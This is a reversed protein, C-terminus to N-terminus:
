VELSIVSAGGPTARSRGRGHPSSDDHSIPPRKLGCRRGQARHDQSGRPQQPDDQFRRAQEPQDQRRGAQARGDQRPRSAGRAEAAPEDIGARIAQPRPLPPLALKVIKRVVSGFQRHLPGTNYPIGYRERIERVERAIEAYRHAPLDPFLHHEIQFSLNGALIHFLRGGTLNASGLLQRYYWEGRTENETEEETFQERGTPSTGASSSRSRGCTAHSTRPRTAPWCSRSRRAPSCRSSCTTRSRRAACRAGSRRCCRASRPWLTTEGAAIREAELDHLAVGYQFFIALLAACLPNGLYYPRWPEEESMRLIGYGIDRDKGVINTHTHHM